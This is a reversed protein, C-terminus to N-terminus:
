RGEKGLFNVFAPLFSLSSAPLHPPFSQRWSDEWPSSSCMGATPRPLCSGQCVESCRPIWHGQVSHGLLPWPAGTKSSGTVSLTAETSPELPDGEKSVKGSLEVLSTAQQWRSEESFLSSISPLAQPVTREMMQNRVSTAFTAM